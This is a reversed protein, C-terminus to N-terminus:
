ENEILAGVYLWRGNVQVFESHEHLKHTRGNVKYRAVFEVQGSSDEPRGASQGIIKLGTWKQGAIKELDAPCTSPYWTARLYAINQKVYATYRSRMLAEATAATQGNEIYRGCCSNYELGSGCPCLSEQSNPM